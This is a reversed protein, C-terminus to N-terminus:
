GCETYSVAANVAAHYEGDYFYSYDATGDHGWGQPLMTKLIFFYKACSVHVTVEDGDKSYTGSVQFRLPGEKFKITIWGYVDHMPLQSIVFEGEIDPQGDATIKYCPHLMELKAVM